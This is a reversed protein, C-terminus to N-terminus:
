VTRTYTGKPQLRGDMTYGSFTFTDSPQCTLRLAYRRGRTGIPLGKTPGSDGSTAWTTGGWTTGGWVSASNASTFGLSVSAAPELLLTVTCSISPGSIYVELRDWIKDYDPRGDDIKQTQVTVTPPNGGTGDFAKEDRFGQFGLWVPNDAGASLARRDIAVVSQAAGFTGAKQVLIDNWYLGTYRGWADFRQDYVLMDDNTNTLAAFSVLVQQGIYNTVVVDQIQGGRFTKFVDGVAQWGFPKVDNGALRHMGAKGYFYVASGSAAAARCGSCGAGKYLPFSRFQSIDDGEVGWVSWQKLVALRDVQLKVNTILDGDDPGIDSANLANWNAIGTAEIDGVAQSFYLTAGAWGVLRDKYAIIGDLHPPEGHVNEDSRYGLDADAIVDNYTTGTGDAVFYFPGITSGTSKTREITWGLYDSRIENAIKTIQVQTNAGMAISQVGSAKSSGDTFRYRLRYYYTSAATLGGGGAGTLTLEVTDAATNPNYTVTANTHKQCNPISVSWNGAGITLTSNNSDTAAASLTLTTDGPNVQLSVTTGGPIGPGSIPVGAAIAPFAPRPLCGTHWTNAPNSTRYFMPPNAGANETVWLAGHLQDWVMKTSTGLPLAVTQATFAGTKAEYLTGRTAHDCGVFIRGVGSSVFEMCTHPNDALAVSSFRQTGNRVTLAGLPQFVMNDGLALTPKRTRYDTTGGDLGKSFDTVVSQIEQPM